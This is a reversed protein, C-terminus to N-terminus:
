LADCIYINESREFVINTNDPSYSPNRDKATWKDPARTLWSLKGSKYECAFLGDRHPFVLYKDDRSITLGELFPKDSNVVIRPIGNGSDKVEYIYEPHPYSSFPVEREVYFINDAAPQQVPNYHACGDLHWTTVPIARGTQLDLRRILQEAEATYYVYRGTADGGLASDADATVDYGTVDGGTAPVTWVHFKHTTEDKRVFAIVGGALWTPKRPADAASGYDPTITIKRRSVTDYVALHYAEVFVVKATDPAYCPDWADSILLEVTDEKLPEDVPPLPEEKECAPMTLASAVLMLWSWRKM